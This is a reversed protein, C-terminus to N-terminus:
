GMLSKQNLSSITERWADLQFTQGEGKIQSLHDALDLLFEEDKDLLTENVTIVEGINEGLRALATPDHESSAISSNIVWKLNACVTNQTEELAERAGALAGAENIQILRDFRDLQKAIEDLQSMCRDIKGTLEKRQGMMLGLQGRIEEPGSDKSRYHLGLNHLRKEAAKSRIDKIVGFLGILFLILSVSLLAAPPIIRMNNAGIIGLQVILAARYAQILFWAIVSLIMGIVGAILLSRKASM